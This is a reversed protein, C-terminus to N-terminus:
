ALSSSSSSVITTTTQFSVALQSLALTRTAPLPFNRWIDSNIQWNSRMWKTLGRRSATGVNTITTWCATTTKLGGTPLNLSLWELFLFVVLIQFKERDRKRAYYGTQVTWTVKFNSWIKTQNYHRWTPIRDSNWWDHGDICGNQNDEQLHLLVCLEVTTVTSTLRNSQLLHGNAASFWHTTTPKRDLCVIAWLYVCVCVCLCASPSILNFWVSISISLWLPRRKRPWGCIRRGLWKLARTLPSTESVKSPRKTWQKWLLKSFTITGDNVLEGWEISQNGGERWYKVFVRVVNCM